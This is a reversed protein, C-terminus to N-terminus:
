VGGCERPRSKEIWRVLICSRASFSSPAANERAWARAMTSGRKRADAGTGGRKQMEAHGLGRWRVEACRRTQADADTGDREGSNGSKELYDGSQLLRAEPKRGARFLAGAYSRNLATDVRDTAEAHLMEATLVNCLPQKKSFDRFLPVCRRRDVTLPVLLAFLAPYPGFLMSWCPLLCCSPAPYLGFSM